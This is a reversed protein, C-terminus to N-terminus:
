IVEALTVKIQVTVTGGFDGPNITHTVERFTVDFSEAGSLGNYYAGTLKSM